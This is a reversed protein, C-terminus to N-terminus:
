SSYRLIFELLKVDDTARYQFFGNFPEQVAFMSYEKILWNDVLYDSTGEIHVGSDMLMRALECWLREPMNYIM